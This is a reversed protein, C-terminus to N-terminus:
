RLRSRRWDRGDVAASIKENPIISYSILDPSARGPAGGEKYPLKHGIDERKTDHQVLNLGALGEWARWRGLIAVVERM